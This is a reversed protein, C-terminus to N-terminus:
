KRQGGNRARHLILLVGAGLLGLALTSPEPVPTLTFSQFGSGVLTPPPEPPFTTPNGTDIRVIISKGARIAPNGTAVADAYSLGGAAEWGRVQFLGFGGPPTVNITPTGFNFRGPLPGFNVATGVRVAAIDFVDAPTGDPAFMLEARFQSGAPVPVTGSETQLYVLTNNDNAIVATGQGYSHLVAATVLTAIILLTKM